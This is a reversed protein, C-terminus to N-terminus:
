LNIREPPPWSTARTDLFTYIELLSLYGDELFLMVGGAVSGNEATYSADAAPFQAVVAPGAASRDVVLDVTACGCSCRRGLTTYPLQGLLEERGPAGPPLLAHLTAVVDAPLAARDQSM